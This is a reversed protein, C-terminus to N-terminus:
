FTKQYTKDELTFHLANGSEAPVAAELAVVAAEVAEPADEVAVAVEVAGGESEVEVSVAPM